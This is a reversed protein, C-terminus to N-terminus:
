NRAGCIDSCDGGGLPTWITVFTRFTMPLSLQPETTFAEHFPMVLFLSVSLLTEPSSGGTHRNRPEAEPSSFFLVGIQKLLLTAPAQILCATEVKLM